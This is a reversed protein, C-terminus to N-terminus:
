YVACSSVPRGFQRQTRAKNHEMDGRTGEPPGLSQFAAPPIVERLPPLTHTADPRTSMGDDREQGDQEARSPPANCVNMLPPLRVQSYDPCLNACLFKPPRLANRFIFSQRSPSSSALSTARLRPEGVDHIPRERVPHRRPPYPTFKLTHLYYDIPKPDDPPPTNLPTDPPSEDQTPHSPVLPPLELTPANSAHPMHSASPHLFMPYHSSHDEEPANVDVPLSLDVPEEKVFARPPQSPFVAPRFRVNLRTPDASIPHAPKKEATIQAKASRKATRRKPSPMAGAQNQQGSIM